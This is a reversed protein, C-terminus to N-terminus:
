SRDGMAHLRRAVGAMFVLDAAMAVIVLAKLLTRAVLAPDATLGKLALWTGAALGAAIAAIVCVTTIAAFGWDAASPAAHKSM